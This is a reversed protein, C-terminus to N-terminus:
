DIHISKKLLYKFYFELMTTNSRRVVRSRQETNIKSVQQIAFM